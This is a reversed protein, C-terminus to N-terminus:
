RGSDSITRTKFTSHVLHRFLQAMARHFSCPALCLACLVTLSVSLVLLRMYSLPLHSLFVPQSVSSLPCGALLFACRHPRHVSDALSVVSMKQREPQVECAEKKRCSVPDRSNKDGSDKKPALSPLCLRAFKPAVIHLFWYM